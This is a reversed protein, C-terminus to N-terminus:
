LWLNKFTMVGAASSMGTGQDGHGSSQSGQINTLLTQDPADITTLNSDLLTGDPDQQLRMLGCLGWLQSVTQVPIINHQSQSFVHKKSVGIRFKLQVEKNM